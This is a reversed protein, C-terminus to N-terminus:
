LWLPIQLPIKAYFFLAWRHVLPRKGLCGCTACEHRRTVSVAHGHLM